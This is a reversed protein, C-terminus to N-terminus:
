KKTETKVFAETLVAAIKDVNANLLDVIKAQIADLAVQRGSTDRYFLKQEDLQTIKDLFTLHNLQANLVCNGVALTGLLSIENDRNEANRQQRHWLADTKKMREHIQDFFGDLMMKANLVNVETGADKVTEPGSKGNAM